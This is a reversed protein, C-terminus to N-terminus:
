RSKVRNVQTRDTRSPASSVRILSRCRRVVPRLCAEPPPGARVGGDRRPVDVRDDVRVRAAEAVRVAREGLDDRQELRVAGARAARHGARGVVEGARESAGLPPPHQEGAAVAREVRDGVDRGLAEGAEREGLERQEGGPPRVVERV